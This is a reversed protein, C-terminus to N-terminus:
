AEKKMKVTNIVYFQIYFISTVTVKNRQATSKLESLVYTKLQDLSCLKSFPAIHGNLYAWKNTFEENPVVVAVLM